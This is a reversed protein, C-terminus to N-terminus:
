KAPNQWVTGDEYEIRYIVVQESLQKSMDKGATQANVIYTPTSGTRGVLESNQGPRIKIKNSSYRHRGLEQRTKPDLFLYGWDIARITKAGTNKIKVQYLYVESPEATIDRSNSRRQPPPQRSESGRARIANQIENARQVRLAENFEANASFPDDDLASNRVQLRWNKQLVVIDPAASDSSSTQAAACLAGLLIACLVLSVNKM